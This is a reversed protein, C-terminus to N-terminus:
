RAASPSHQRMPRFVAADAYFNENQDPWWGPVGLVPLHTFDSTSMGDELQSAVKADVWQQQEIEPLALIAPPVQVVWTHGTIAKYPSVLKEMLAHGFLNVKCSTQFSVRQEIFLKRWQHQRLVSHVTPDSTLLLVANEDFVTAADRLKGRISQASTERRVIEAAQLANLQVKIRPYSLWVLANFFDHLNDRTPVSGSVSIFTEYAVDAPLDSQPVFKLPISRHNKLGRDCALANLGDRWHAARLVLSAAPLVSALWPQRWDIQELFAAPM